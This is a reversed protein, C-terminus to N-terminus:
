CVGCCCCLWLISCVQGTSDFAEMGTASTYASLQFLTYFAHSFDCFGPPIENSFFTVGINSYVAMIVLGVVQLMLVVIMRFLSDFRYIRYGCKYLELGPRTSVNLLILM